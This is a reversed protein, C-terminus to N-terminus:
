AFALVRAPNKVLIADIDESTFGRSRMRPVMNTLIHGYGKGGFRGFRWRHCVDHAIVIQNRHGLSVLYEVMDLKQADNRMPIATPDGGYAGEELGFTDFELFTGAGALETLIADDAIRVDLHGLVVNGPTAGAKVLIELIEAPATQKHGPHILIPAGTEAQARGAARVVKLVNPPLPNVCGIEGIIGSRIGTDGAGETVDRVIRETIDDESIRDMDAPHSAPVYYGAGMVVNLGTARSIRALALPDRGIGLSTADVIAGGGALRWEMAEEVAIDEDVLNMSDRHHNWRGPLAGIMDMTTPRDIYSRESAEDPVAFYCDLSLLLHEHMTTPGLSNPDVPGLVTQVQGSAAQPNETSLAM